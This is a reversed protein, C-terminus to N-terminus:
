NWSVWVFEEFYLDKYPSDIVLRSWPQQNSRLRLYHNGSYLNTDPEWKPWSCHVSEPSQFNHVALVTMVFNISAQLFTLGYRAMVEKLMSSVPFRLEAQYILWIRVSIHKDNGQAKTAIECPGSWEILVNNPIEHDRRFQAFARSM